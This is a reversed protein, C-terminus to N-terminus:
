LSRPPVVAGSMGITGSEECDRFVRLHPGRAGEHATNPARASCRGGVCFGGRDGWGWLPSIHYGLAAGQFGVGWINKEREEKIGTQFSQGDPFVPLLPDSLPPNKNLDPM